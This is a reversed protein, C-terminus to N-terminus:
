MVVSIYVIIDNFDVDYREIDTLDPDTFDVWVARAQPMRYANPQHKDYQKASSPSPRIPSGM